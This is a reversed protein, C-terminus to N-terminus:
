VSITITGATLNIVFTGSSNRLVGATITGANSTLDSLGETPGVYISNTTVSNAALANATVTGAVLLNGDVFAAQTVWDTGNFIFAKTGSVHTTAIVFRDDKVPDIDPTHLADWYVNVEATTDVGSLDAAGADYRWWGAGRTGVARSFDFTATSGGTTYDIASSAANSKVLTVGFEYFYQGAIANFTYNSRKNVSTIVYAFKVITTGYVATVTVYDGIVVTSLKQQVNNDANAYGIHLITTVALNNTSVVGSSILRYEVDTDLSAANSQLDNYGGVANGTAPWADEGDAGPTGNQALITPTSWTLTDDLGTTGQVSALATSVYVPDTGTPVTASWGSPATVLQTGFNYSGGTPVAPAAASRRFVSLQYTSIGNSGPAGPLGNTGDQVFRFPTSWASANQSGSDGIISFVFRTAYVPDTGTPIDLFWGSPPTLVNTGFNFSGDTPATPVTASRRFVIATYVSKGASGNQVVITPSSWTLDTDTGTIGVIFATALCSYLPDTGAPPTISWSSPPTLVGTDFNFSGGTPTALATASRRYVQVQAVTNGNSGGFSLISSTSWEAILINDTDTISSATAQRVWLYEGNAVSPISRTWGNLTLGTLTDTSFTYSATGTFSTPATTTTTKIYLFLPRSNLGNVGTYTFITAASWEAIEITDTAATSTATAQRVWLYEGNALNPPTTAWGNLTLGTLARTAFTYTATGTFSAPATTSSTNKNYLSIVATNVGSTGDIGNVGPLGDAGIFRAFTIGARIPLTPLDGSYVYYAVYENLGLSYTQTNTAINDNDAYIVAVQDVAAKQITFSEVLQTAADKALVRASYKNLNNLSRVSFKYVGNNLGVVDYSNTLTTTLAQWTVGNDSSVEVLFGNVSVTNPYNWTIKGSSVGFVGNPNDPTFLVNAPKVVPYYYDTKVSAYPIDDPVNWAFNEFSYQRAEINVTLDANTKVSDVKMTENLLGSTSDTVKIIDGPELLLGKKSATFKARMERRSTRVIQEAKALAHYPDSTCPLYIETKLLIGSDQTLYTNYPASYSTPWTVTDDVFNEFESMFRAVCQNYRTSSDPFELEMGGRIIDEETFTAVVLADQEALSIPADLMLKYKGGSWILEAEEMSELIIEINERLPRESDLVVNCEYLKISTNPLQPQTTITGDENEVDPRRGNIRGDQIVNTSVVRDCIVKAKYFSALDISSLSLGKGYVNNTLYDLLIRAPNETFSKTASLSYVGSANVIDYVKQGEIFFSVNPSGNYNYEERNLKFVMSAYATNTFRNTSPISNATAMTDAVGGDKFVHIRQGYELTEEDWNKDDVTIDVVNNIGGYCIAQQVFLYENQSGTQSSL